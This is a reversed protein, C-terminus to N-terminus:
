KKIGKLMSRNFIGAPVKKIIEEEVEIEEMEAAAKAALLREPPGSLKIKTKSDVVVFSNMELVRRFAAEAKKADAATDYEIDYSPSVNDIDLLTTLIISTKTPKNDINNYLKKGRPYRFPSGRHSSNRSLVEITYETDGIVAAAFPNHHDHFRSKLQAALIKVAVKLKKGSAKLKLVGFYADETFYLTNTEKDLM